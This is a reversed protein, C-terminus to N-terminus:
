KLHILALRRVHEDWQGAIGVIPKGSGLTPLDPREQGGIYDSDYADKPDLTRGRIRMFTIRMGQLRGDIFVAIKGVAYGDKTVISIKGEGEGCARGRVAGTATLYVPTLSTISTFRYGAGFKGTTVDFGILLGGNACVDQFPKGSGSGLMETPATQSDAVAKGLWEFLKHTSSVTDPSKVAEAIRQEARLKEIGTLGGLCKRYWDAAHQQMALKASPKEDAAADWWDNALQLQDALKRTETLEREALTRLTGETGHALFPLGRDWSGKSISFYRGVALNGASDDPNRRLVNAATRFQDWPKRLQEVEKARESIRGGLRRDKLKAACVKASAILRPSVDLRDADVAESLLLLCCDAVGASSGVPSEKAIRELQITKLDFADVAFRRALEDISTCAVGAHISTSAAEEFLVLQTVPDTKTEIAMAKLKEALAIRADISKATKAEEKMLERIQKRAQDRAAVDPM